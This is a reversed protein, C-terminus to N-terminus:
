NYKSMAESIKSSIFLDIIENYISVSKKLIELEEPLFTGLVFDKATKKTENLVGIKFQYFKQSALNNIISKIGNHGGSSSDYKIRVKNFELDIDDHIILIDDLNINFYNVFKVVSTGSNNMYTEPKIFIVQENDVKKLIYKTDFKTKWNNEQLYNDLVFFGVNHRTQNYKNDPNGLGVILKM